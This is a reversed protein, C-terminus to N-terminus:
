LRVNPYNDIFWKITTELGADINTFNFDEFTKKFKEGSVTKKMVGDGFSETDPKIRDLPYELYKAIKYIVDKIKYEVNDECINYVGGKINENLLIKIISKAFDNAFLFQREAEGTGFMNFDTDNKKCNYMRHIVGPIIHSQELNFNDYEGYLNVPSVCIYNKNLKSNYLDCMLQMHRKSYAYGKNSYHPQGDHLMDETMPFSKPNSPFVCSSLCFVGRTVGYKICCELINENITMNNFYMESNNKINEYLGGVRAALHIITDYKHNSFLSEVQELKTLDCDKSSIFHYINNENGEIKNNSLYDKLNNGVLGSGGTVLVRM